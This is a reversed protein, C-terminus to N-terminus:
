IYSQMNIFDSISNKLILKNKWYELVVVQLNITLKGLTVLNQCGAIDTKEENKYNTIDQFM